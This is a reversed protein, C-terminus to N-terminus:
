KAVHFSFNTFKNNGSTRKEAHVEIIDSPTVLGKAALFGQTTAFAKFAAASTKACQLFVLEPKAVDGGKETWLIFGFIDLYPSISAKSYGKAKLMQMYDEVNEGQTTTEHNYSIRFFEKAEADDEGTGIVWRPSFSMMQFKIKSGLDEEGKFLSGQQGTIRPTAMSMVEVTDIDLVGNFESYAPQIRTAPAAVATTAAKAIAITAAVSASAANDTTETM